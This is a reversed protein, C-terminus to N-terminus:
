AVVVNDIKYAVMTNEEGALETPLDLTTLATV